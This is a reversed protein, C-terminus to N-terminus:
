SKNFFNMKFKTCECANQTNLVSCICEKHPESVVGNSQLWEAVAPSIYDSPSGTDILAQITRRRNNPLYVTIPVILVRRKNIQEKLAAFSIGRPRGNKRQFQHQWRGGRHARPETPNDERSHGGQPRTWQAGDLYPGSGPLNPLGKEHFYRKGWESENWPLDSTNFHPHSAYICEGSHSRGCGKCAKKANSKGQIGDKHNHAGHRQSVYDEKHGRHRKSKYDTYRGHAEDIPRKKGIEVIEYAHQQKGAYLMLKDCFEPISKPKGGELLKLHLYHTYEGDRPIHLMLTDICARQQEKSLDRGRSKVEEEYRSQAKAAWANWAEM